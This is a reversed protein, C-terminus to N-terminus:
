TLNRREAPTMFYLRRRRACKAGRAEGVSIGSLRAANENNGWRGMKKIQRMQSLFDELDFDAKKLKEAMKAAEDADITEQAREVLSVVDGMVIHQAM